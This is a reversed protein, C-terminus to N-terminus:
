HSEHPSHRLHLKYPSFPDRRDRLNVTKAILSSYLFTPPNPLISVRSFKFKRMTMFTPKQMVDNYIGDSFFKLSNKPSEGENM